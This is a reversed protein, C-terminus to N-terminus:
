KKHFVFVLWVHSFAALGDFAEANIHSHLTLRGRALSKSLPQRPTGHKEQFPFGFSVSHALSHKTAFALCNIISM